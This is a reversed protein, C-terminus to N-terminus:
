FINMELVDSYRNMRLNLTTPSARSWLARIMWTRVAWKSTRARARTGRISLVGWARNLLLRLGELCDAERPRKTKRRTRPMWFRGWISSPWKWSSIQLWGLRASLFECDENFVKQSDCDPRWLPSCGHRAWLQWHPGHKIVGESQPQPAPQNLGRRSQKKSNSQPPRSM